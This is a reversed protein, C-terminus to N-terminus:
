RIKNQDDQDKNISSFVKIFDEILIIKRESSTAIELELSGKECKDGFIAAYPVGLIKSDKIKVGFQVDRDDIIVPINNNNLMDYLAYAEALREKNDNKTVIYILYPSVEIPLSSGVIKEKEKIANMEYVMAMVRSVGIGYCGMYYPKNKGESDVYNANMAESYTTGLQFIHGLEVAKRKELKSIDKIGYEEELYSIYDARELIESNLGINTVSDYLITDEGLESLLMFEESKKGGIAGNDAAVPIVNLNLRKFINFYANRIKNYNDVLSNEDINFSYADMMNFTKGRLLFGRPRLENRFKEGIQYFTVPLNKYSSLRQMSFKVIAEEATPALGYQNKKTEIVFMTGDAVYKDWRGSDKWIYSPQLIPLSVQVCDVKDLEEIIIKEINKQVLNPIYDFAFIGSEYQFIQGSQMLIDQVPFMEDIKNLKVSKYGLSSLKM